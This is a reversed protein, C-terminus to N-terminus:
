NATEFIFAPLVALRTCHWIKALMTQLFSAHWANQVSSSNCKAHALEASCVCVCIVWVCVYSEYVCVYSEYVCMHSMCYVYLWLIYKKGGSVAVCHWRDWWTCKSFVLLFFVINNWKMIKKRNKSLKKKTEVNNKEKRGEEKM